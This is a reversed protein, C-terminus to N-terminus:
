IGIPFQLSLVAIHRLNYVREFTKLWRIMENSYCYISVFSTYMGTSNCRGGEGEGFPSLRLLSAGGRIKYRDTYSSPELRTNGSTIVKNNAVNSGPNGVAAFIEAPISFTASITKISGIKM